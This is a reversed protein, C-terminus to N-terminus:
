GVGWERWRLVKPSSMSEIPVKRRSFARSEVETALLVLEAVVMAVRVERIEARSAKMWALLMTGGVVEEGEENSASPRAIAITM